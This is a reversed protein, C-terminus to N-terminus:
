SLGLYIGYHAFQIQVNIQTFFLLRSQKKEKRELHLGQIATIKLICDQNCYM